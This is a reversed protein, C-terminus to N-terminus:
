DDQADIIEQLLRVMVPSDRRSSFERQAMRRRKDKLLGDLNPVQNALKWDPVKTNHWVHVKERGVSELIKRLQLASVPGEEIWKEGNKGDWTCHWGGNTNRAGAGPTCSMTMTKNSKGM